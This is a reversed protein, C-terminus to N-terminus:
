LDSRDVRQRREVIASFWSGQRAGCTPCVNRPVVLHKVFEQARQGQGTRAKSKPRYGIIRSGLRFTWFWSRVCRADCSDGQWLPCNLDVKQFVLSRGGELDG